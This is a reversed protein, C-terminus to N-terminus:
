TFFDRRWCQSNYFSTTRQKILDEAKKLDEKLSKLDVTKIERKKPKKGLKIWMKELRPIVEQLYIDVMNFNGGKVKDLALKLQLKLDFVDQKEAELQELQYSLDDILENFKNYKELEEDALRQTNHM